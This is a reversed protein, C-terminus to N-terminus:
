IFKNKFKELVHHYKLKDMSTEKIVQYILQKEDETETDELKKSLAHISETIEKLQGLTFTLGSLKEKIAKAVWFGSQYKKM